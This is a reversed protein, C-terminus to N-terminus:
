VGNVTDLYEYGFEDLLERPTRFEVFRHVKMQTLRRNTTVFRSAEGALYSCIHPLDDVDTVCKAYHRIFLGWEFKSIVNTHPLSLMLLRQKSAVDKGFERKFLGLVEDYLYDSQIVTFKAEIAKKM